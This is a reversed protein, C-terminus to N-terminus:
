EYSLRVNGESAKIEILAGGGNLKGDVREERSTGSFSNLRADVSEGILYLDVSAESPIELSVNGDSTKLEIPGDIRNLSGKIEGDSTRARIAGAHNRFVVNGDSTILEFSGTSSSVSINGDSTILRGEGKLQSVELEGDSSVLEVNGTVQKLYGNGDSTRAKVNGKVAELDINGDSSIAEVNGEIGQGEINGDSTKAYVAGNIDEFNINGDSTKMKQVATLGYASVNGDSCNVDCATRTPVKIEFSLYVRDKWDIIRSAYKQRVEIDLSSSSYLITIDLYEKLGERDISLVENGRKAIYFVEIENKDSPLIKVNGDNTSVKLQPSVTTEYVESFSSNQARVKSGISLLFFLFVLKSKNM